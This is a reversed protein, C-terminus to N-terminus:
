EHLFPLGSNNIITSKVGQLHIGAGFICTHLSTCSVMSSCFLIFLEAKSKKTASATVILLLFPYKYVNFVEKIHM